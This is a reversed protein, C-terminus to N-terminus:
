GGCDGLELRINVLATRVLYPLRCSECRPMGWAFDTPNDGHFRCSQPAAKLAEQAKRLLGLLGPVRRAQDLHKDRMTVAFDLQKRLEVILNDQSDIERVLETRLRSVAADIDERPREAIAQRLYCSLDLAEEYADRLADRGNNPQLVTGYRQRGLAERTELDARVMGQVSPSENPVPM